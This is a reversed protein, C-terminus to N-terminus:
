AQRYNIMPAPVLIFASRQVNFTSYLTDRLRRKMVFQNINLPYEWRFIGDCSIRSFPADRKRSIVGPSGTPTLSGSSNESMVPMGFLLMALFPFHSNILITLRKEGVEVM